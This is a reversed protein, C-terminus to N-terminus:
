EVCRLASVRVDVGPSYVAHAPPVSVGDCHRILAPTYTERCQVQDLPVFQYPEHMVSATLIRNDASQTVLSYREVLFHELTGVAAAQPKAAPLRFSIEYAEAPARRREGTYRLSGRRADRDLTMRCDVYNLNWFTRAIRVAFRSNADLSFFWVASLGSQHRVYTRLNTELFWSIVPVPAAWWPRVREMAFAVLGLWATGDFTEVTLGQPLHVQLQQPDM